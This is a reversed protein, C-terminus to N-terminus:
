FRYRGGVQLRRERAEDAFLEEFGTGLVPPRPNARNSVNFLEARLELAQGGLQLTKIAALDLSRWPPGQPANRDIRPRGSQTVAIGSVQLGGFIAKTWGSTFWRADAGFPLQWSFAATLKHRADLSARVREEGASAITWRGYTYGIHTSLATESRQQLQIRLGDYRADSGFGDFEDDSRTGVYGAELTRLRGWQRQVGVSWADLASGEPQIHRGYDGRVVHRAESGLAWAFGARPSVLSDDEIGFDEDGSVQDFRVGGTVSLQATARWQDQVFASITTEEGLLLADAPQVGYYEVGMNLLHAAASWSLVNAAEVADFEPLVGSWREDFALRALGVRADNVLSGSLQHVYSVGLLDASRDLRGGRGAGYRATLRGAGAVLDVRGTARTFGSTDGDLDDENEHSVDGFFFFRNRAIPGGALGGAQFREADPQYFALAVGAFSNTGSKTVLNAQAGASRGLRTDLPPVFVVQETVSEPLPLLVATGLIPDFAAVGDVLYATSTSRTGAAVPGTLSTTLGPTLAVLDTLSRRDLPLATIFPDEFRTRFGPSTRDVSQFYPRFDITGSSGLGARLTLHTTDAARVEARAVVGSFRPDDVTMRYSGADLEPLVFRGDEGTTAQRAQGTAESDVRVVLGGVPRSDADVLQGRISGRHEAADVSGALLLSGLVVAMIGRM